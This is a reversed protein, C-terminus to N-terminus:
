AAAWCVSTSACRRLDEDIFLLAAMILSFPLVFFVFDELFIDKRTDQERKIPHNGPAIQVRVYDLAEGLKEFLPIMSGLGMQNLTAQGIRVWKNSGLMVGKIRPDRTSGPEDDASVTRILTLVNMMDSDAHRFDSIRHFIERSTGMIAASRHYMELLDGVVIEGSFTAHIIPENDLKYVTVPMM